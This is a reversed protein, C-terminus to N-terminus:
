GRGRGSGPDARARASRATSFRPPEPELGVGRNAVYLEQRETQEKPGISDYARFPLGTRQAFATFGPSNEYAGPHSSKAGAPERRSDRLRQAQGRVRM